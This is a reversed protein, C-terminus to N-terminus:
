FKWRLGAQVTQESTNVVLRPISAFNRDTAGSHLAAILM